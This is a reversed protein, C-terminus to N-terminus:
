QTLSVILTAGKLVRKLTDQTKADTEFDVSSTAEDMIIIRARRILARAMVILQKEGLSFNSGEDEVPQDLNFQPATVCSDKILHVRRLATWLDADTSEGFPDLNSRITGHFLVPDQPIVALVSRLDKIGIQGIDVGDITISGSSIEILRFLAVM